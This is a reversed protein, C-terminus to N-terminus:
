LRRTYALGNMVTLITTLAHLVLKMIPKRPISIFVIM